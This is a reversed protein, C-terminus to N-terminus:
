QNSEENRNDSVISARVAAEPTDVPSIKPELGGMAVLLKREGIDVSLPREVCLTVQANTPLV